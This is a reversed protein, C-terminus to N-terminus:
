TESLLHQVQQSTQLTQHLQTMNLNVGADESEVVGDSDHGAEGEREQDGCSLINTVGYVANM